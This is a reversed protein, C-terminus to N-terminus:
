LLAIAGGRPVVCGWRRTRFQATRRFRPRASRTEPPLPVVLIRTFLSGHSGQRVHSSRDSPQQKAPGARAAPGAPTLKQTGLRPLCDATCFRPSLLSARVPPAQPAKLFSGWGGAFTGMAELSHISTSAQGLRKSQPKSSFDLTERALHQYNPCPSEARMSSEQGRGSM